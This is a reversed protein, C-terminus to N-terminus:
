HLVTVNTTAINEPRMFKFHLSLILLTLQFIRGDFFYVGKQHCCFYIFVCLQLEPTSIAICFFFFFAHLIDTPFFFLAYIEIREANLFPLAFNGPEM